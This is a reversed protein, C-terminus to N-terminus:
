RKRAAQAAEIVAAKEETAWDLATKGGRDRISRDAGNELLVKAVEVSPTNILPTIGCKDQANIDAGAEILLLAADADWAADILATNGNEDKANIDAGAQLLMRVVEARDIPPPEPGRHWQGVAEMLATRKKDGRANVDPHHELMDQVVAPVGSAAANMLATRGAADRWKFDAGHQVLLVVAEHNGSRLANALAASLARPEGKGAGAGLLSAVIKAEGRAAAHELASVGSEDLGTLPVGATILDRVAESTGYRAVRALTRAAEPSKFDWNEERLCRVTEANGKTWRETKALEDIADELHTVASPMGAVLGVYDKVKKPHADIEISTEYTPADTVGWVYKDRLSYFDAERFKTVL